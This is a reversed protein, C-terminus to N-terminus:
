ELDNKKDFKNKLYVVWLILAAMGINVVFIPLDAEYYGYIIWGINGAFTMWLTLRSLDKATKTQLIKLLQPYWAVAM